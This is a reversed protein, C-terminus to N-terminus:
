PVTVSLYVKGVDFLTHVSLNADKSGNVSVKVGM